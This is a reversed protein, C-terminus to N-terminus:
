EDIENISVELTGESLFSFQYVKDSCVFSCISDLSFDTDDSEKEWIMDPQNSLDEIFEQDTLRNSSGNAAIRRYDVRNYRKLIDVCQDKNKILVNENNESHVICYSTPSVCRHKEIHLSRIQRCSDSFYYGSTEDEITWPNNSSSAITFRLDGQNLDFAFVYDSEMLEGSVIHKLEARSYAEREIILSFTQPAFKGMLMAIYGGYGNGFAIIKKRNIDYKNIIEGLVRLNDVAPLFGWSQYEGKDTILLPQCRIDLSTVGRRLVPETIMRYLEEGSQALAFDDFSMNLGYIRNYNYLFSPTLQIQSSRYIGFYSTGVAICNLKNALYARLGKQHETECSEGFGPIVMIVGTDTDIGTEPITFDASLDTRRVGLEIDPHPRLEMHVEMKLGWDYKNL